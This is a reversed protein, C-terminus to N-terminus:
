YVRGKGPDDAGGAVHAASYPPWCPRWTHRGETPFWIDGMSSLFVLFAQVGEPNVQFMRPRTPGYLLGSAIDENSRRKAKGIASHAYQYTVVMEAMAACEYHYRGADTMPWHRLMNYPKLVARVTARVIRFVYRRPNMELDRQEHKYVRVPEITEFHDGLPHRILLLSVDVERKGNRAAARRAFRNWLLSTPPTIIHYWRKCVRACLLVGFPGLQDFILLLIETPLYIDDCNRYTAHSITSPMVRGPSSGTPDYHILSLHGKPQDKRTLFWLQPLEPRSM